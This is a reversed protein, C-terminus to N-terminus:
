SKPRSSWAFATGAVRDHVVSPALSRRRCARDDDELRAARRHEAVLQAIQKGVIRAGVRSRRASTGASRTGRADPQRAVLRRPEVRFTAAGRGSGDCPSSSSSRRPTAAASSPRQFTCDSSAPQQPMAPGNPNSAGVLVGDRLRDALPHQQRGYAPALLVREDHGVAETAAFLDLLRGAPARDMESLHHPERQRLPM